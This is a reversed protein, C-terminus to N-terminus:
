LGWSREPVRVTRSERRVRAGAGPQEALDMAVRQGQGLSFAASASFSKRGLRDTFNSYPPVQLGEVGCAADGLKALLDMHASSVTGSCM